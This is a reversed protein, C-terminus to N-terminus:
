DDNTLARHVVPLDPSLSLVGSDSHLLWAYSLASYRFTGFLDSLYATHSTFSHQVHASEIIMSEVTAGSVFEKARPVLHVARPAFSSPRNLLRSVLRKTQQHFMM